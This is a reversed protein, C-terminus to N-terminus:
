VTATWDFGPSDSFGKENAATIVVGATVGAAPMTGTVIGTAPAIALGAPLGTAGWTITPSGSLLFASMDVPAIAVLETNSQPPVTGMVPADIFHLPHRVPIIWEGRQTVRTQPQLNVPRLLSAM